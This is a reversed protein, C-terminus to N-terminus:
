ASGGTRLVGRLPEIDEEPLGLAYDEEVPKEAIMANARDLGRKMEDTTM